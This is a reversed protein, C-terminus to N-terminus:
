EHRGERDLLLRAMDILLDRDADTIQAALHVLQDLQDTTPTKYELIGAAQFVREPPINFARAIAPATRKGPKRGGTYLLSITGTSLGSSRALDAQTWGRRNLEEDLWISFDIGSMQPLLVM